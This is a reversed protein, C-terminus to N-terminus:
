FPLSGDGNDDFEEFEVTPAKAHRATSGSYAEGGSDDRKSSGFYVSDAVIEVAKRKNGDKDEYSRTQLRGDVAIMNGKTFYRSVFEATSRWAVIDLFDAEKEGDKGKFDRDVAISFSTVATGSQTSRLEPDRTLRGMIAVRNLSM